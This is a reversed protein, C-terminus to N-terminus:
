DILVTGGRSVIIAINALGASSPPANGRLDAEISSSESEVLDSLIQDVNAETMFCHDFNVVRINKAVSLRPVVALSNLSLNIDLIETAEDSVTVGTLNCDPANLTLLIDSASVDLESQDGQLQLELQRINAPISFVGDARLAPNLFLLSSLILIYKTM